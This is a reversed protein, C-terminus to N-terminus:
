VREPREGSLLERIKDLMVHLDVPKMFFADVDLKKTDKSISGTLLVVPTKVKLTKLADLVGAGDLKPMRHDLIILDVNKGRSMIKVAKEGSDATIVNFGSKKLFRELIYLIEHEDDVILIDPM